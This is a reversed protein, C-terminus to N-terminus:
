PLYKDIFAIPLVSLCYYRATEVSIRLGTVCLFLHSMAGSFLPVSPNVETGDPRDSRAENEEEEEEEEETM